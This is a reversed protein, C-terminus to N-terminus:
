IEAVAEAMEDAFGGELGDLYERYVRPLLQKGEVALVVADSQFAYLGSEPDLIEQRFQAFGPQYIEVNFENLFGQAVLADHIFEISFSYLLAVRFPKLGLLKTDAKAVANRLYTWHRGSADELLMLRAAQIAAHLEGRALANALSIRRNDSMS